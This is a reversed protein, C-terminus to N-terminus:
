PAQSVINGDLCVKKLKAIGLDYGDIQGEKRTRLMDLLAEMELHRSDESYETMTDFYSLKLEILAPLLSPGRLEKFLHVLSCSSQDQELEDLECNDVDVLYDQHIPPQFEVELKELRPTNQFLLILTEACSNFRPFHHFALCSLLNTRGCRTLFAVLDESLLTSIPTTSSNGISDTSSPVFTLDLSALGPAQLHKLLGRVGACSPLSVKLSMQRLFGCTYSVDISDRLSSTSADTLQLARRFANARFVADVEVEEVNTCLRLLSELNDFSYNCKLTRIQQWPLDLARVMESPSLSDRLNLTLHSLLSANRLSVAPTPPPSSHDLDGWRWRQSHSAFTGGLAISKLLPFEGHLEEMRIDEHRGDGPPNEGANLDIDVDAMGWRTCQELLLPAVVRSSSKTRAHCTSLGLKVHLRACRSRLLFMQVLNRVFTTDEQSVHIDGFATLDTWISPNSLAVARWRKCVRLFDLPIRIRGYSRYRVQEMQDLFHVRLIEALIEDPLSNIPAYLARVDEMRRALAQQSISLFSIVDTLRALEYNHRDLLHQLDSLSNTINNKEALSLETNPHLGPGTQPPPQSHRASCSCASRSHILQIANSMANTTSLVTSCQYCLLIDSGADALSDPCRHTTPSANTEM